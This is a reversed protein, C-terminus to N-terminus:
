SVRVKGTKVMNVLDDVSVNKKERSMGEREERIVRELTFLNSAKGGKYRNMSGLGLSSLFSMAEETASFERSGHHTAASRAFSAVIKYLLDSRSKAPSEEQIFFDACTALDRMDLRGEIVATKNSEM